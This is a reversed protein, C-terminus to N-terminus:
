KNYKTKKLSTNFFNKHKKIKKKSNSFHQKNLKYKKPTKPNKYKKRSKSTPITSGGFKSPAKELLEAIDPKESSEGELPPPDDDEELPPPDDDELSPPDIGSLKNYINLYEIAKDFSKQSESFGINEVIRINTEKFDNLWDSNDSSNPINILHYGKTFSYNTEDFVINHHEMIYFLHTFIKQYITAYLTDKIDSKLINNLVIVEHIIDTMLLYISELLDRMYDSFMILSLLDKPLNLTKTSNYIIVQVYFIVKKITINFITEMDKSVPEPKKDEFLRKMNNFSQTAEKIFQITPKLEPHDDELSGGKQLPSAKRAENTIEVKQCFTLAKTHKEETKDRFTNIQQSVNGVEEGTLLKEIEKLAKDYRIKANTWETNKELFTERTAENQKNIYEDYSVKLADQTQIIKVQANILEQALPRIRSADAKLGVKELKKNADNGGNEDVISVMKKLAQRRTHLNDPIWGYKVANDHMVILVSPEERWVGGAVGRIRELKYKGFPLMYSNMFIALLGFFILYNFAIRSPAIISLKEVLNNLANTTAERIEQSPELQSIIDIFIEAMKEIGTVAAYSVTDYVKDIFSNVKAKQSKLKEDAARRPRDQINQKLDEAYQKFGTLVAQTDENVKADLKDKYTKFLEKLKSNGLIYANAQRQKMDSPRAAGFFKSYLESEEILNLIEEDFNRGSAYYGDPSYFAVSRHTPIAAVIAAHLDTIDQLVMDVSIKLADTETLVMVKEGQSKLMKKLEAIVEPTFEDHRPLNSIIDEIKTNIATERERQRKIQTALFDSHTRLYDANNMNAIITNFLTNLPSFLRVHTETSTFDTMKDKYKDLTGVIHDLDYSRLRIEEELRAAEDKTAPNDRVKQWKINMEAIVERLHDVALRGGLDLTASWEESKPMYRYYAVASAMAVGAALKTCEIGAVPVAAGTVPPFLAAISSAGCATASAALAGGVMNTIDLVAGPALNTLDRFAHMDKGLRSEPDVNFLNTSVWLMVQATTQLDRSEETLIGYKNRGSLRRFFSQGGADVLLKNLSQATATDGRRQAADQQKIIIKQGDELISRTQQRKERAENVEKVLDKLRQAQAALEEPTMNSKDTKKANELESELRTYEQDSREFDTNKQKMYEGFEDDYKKNEHPSLGNRLYLLLQTKIKELKDIAVRQQSIKSHVDNKNKILDLYEQSNLEYGGKLTLKEIRGVKDEVGDYVRTDVVVDPSKRITETAVEADIQQQNMTKLRQNFIQNLEAIRKNLAMEQEIHAKMTSTREAKETRTEALKDQAFQVEEPPRRNSYLNKALEPYRADFEESSPDHGVGIDQFDGFEELGELNGNERVLQNYLARLEARTGCQHRRTCIRENADDTPPAPPASPPAPPDDFRHGQESFPKSTTGSQGYPGGNATASGLAAAALVAKFIKGGGEHRNNKRSLIQTGIKKYARRTKKNINHKKKYQRHTKIKKDHTKKRHMANNSNTM